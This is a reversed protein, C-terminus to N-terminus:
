IFLKRKLRETEESLFAVFALVVYNVFLAVLLGAIKRKHFEKKKGEDTEREIRQRLEEIRNDLDVGGQILPLIRNQAQRRTQLERRIDQVVTKDLSEGLSEFDRTFEAFARSDLQSGLRFLGKVYALLEEAQQQMEQLEELTPEAM